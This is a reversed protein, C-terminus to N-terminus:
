VDRGSSSEDQGRWSTTSRRLVDRLCIEYLGSTARRCRGTGTARELAEMLPWANRKEQHWAIIQQLSKPEKLFELLVGVNSEVDPLSEAARPTAAKTQTPSGQVSALRAKEQMLLADVRCISKRDESLTLEARKERLALLRHRDAGEAPPLQLEWQVLSNKVKAPPAPKRAPSAVAEKAQRDKADEVMLLIRDKM